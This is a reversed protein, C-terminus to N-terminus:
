IEGVHVCTGFFRRLALVLLRRLRLEVFKEDLLHFINVPGFLVQYLPQLLHGTRSGAELQFLGELLVVGLALLLDALDFLDEFQQALLGGGLAAGGHGAQELLGLLHNLVRLAVTEHAVGTQNQGGLLGLM